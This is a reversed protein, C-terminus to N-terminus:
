SPALRSQLIQVSEVGYLGRLLPNQGNSTVDIFWRIAACRTKVTCMYCVVLKEWTSMILLRFV